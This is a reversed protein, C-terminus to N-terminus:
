YRPTSSTRQFFEVIYTPTDFDKTRPWAHVGGAHKVLEVQTSSACTQYVQNSFTGNHFTQVPTGTCKNRKSWRTFDEPIPPFGLLPDGDWPVVIDLTGHINLESVRGTANTYNQDCATLGGQNGPRQEVVGSVSAVARFTDSLKCGIVSAMMAGNSFGSAFIRGKDICLESTINAVIISTFEFDDTKSHETFGCCTGSNWAIGLEGISGCPTVFIFGDQQAFQKLGSNDMMDMCNDNLGHFCLHLPVQKSNDYGTPIFVEYYREGEPRKVTFRTTKGAPYPLPTNCAISVGLMAAVLV